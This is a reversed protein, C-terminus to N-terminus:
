WPYPTGDYNFFKGSDAETLGAIVKRLSKVSENSTIAANGGGMDTKVWGPHFNAVILDRGEDAAAFSRMVQNAAAKSSRYIYDGGGNNQTISGMMSSITILKRQESARINKSFVTAIKLPALTNTRFVQEWKAFDMNSASMNRPGFVGANNILVDIPLGELDQSLRDIQEHLNVDLGHVQIDGSITALEGPQFPKRCTAIVTWGDSGYQRAFELGIGRNAGTIFVTPM